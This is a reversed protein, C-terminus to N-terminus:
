INLYQVVIIVTTILRHSFPYLMCVRFGLRSRGFALSLSLTVFLIAWRLLFPTGDCIIRPNLILCHQPRQEEVSALTTSLDNKYCLGMDWNKKEVQSWNEINTHGQCHPLNLNGEVKELKQPTPWTAPCWVRETGESTKRKLYQHRQVLASLVTASEVRRGLVSKSLQSLHCSSPHGADVQILIEEM